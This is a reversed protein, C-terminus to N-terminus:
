QGQERPEPADANGVPSECCATSGTGTEGAIAAEIGQAPWRRARFIVVGDDGEGPNFVENGDHPEAIEFQMEHVLGCDCCQMLYGSETAANPTPHIWESWGEEDPLMPECAPDDGLTNWRHCVAEAGRKLYAGKTTGAGDTVAWM